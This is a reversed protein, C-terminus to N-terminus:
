VLFASANIHQLEMAIATMDLSQPNLMSVDKSVVWFCEHPHNYQHINGWAENM